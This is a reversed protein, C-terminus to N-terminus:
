HPHLRPANSGGEFPSVEPPTPRERSLWAGAVLLCLLGANRMVVWVAAHRADEFMRIKGFCMCDPPARIIWQWVFAGTVVILFAAAGVIVTRRALGLFWAVALSMELAPVTVAVVESWGDPVNWGNALADRFESVDAAKLLSASLFVVLVSAIALSGIRRALSSRKAGLGLTGLNM